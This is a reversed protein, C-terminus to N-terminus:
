QNGPSFLRIAQKELMSFISDYRSIGRVTLGNRELIEMDAWHM